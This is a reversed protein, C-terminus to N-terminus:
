KNTLLKNVIPIDAAAWDLTGLEEAKLWKHSIHEHLTLADSDVQCLYAHLTVELNPYQHVVTLFYSQNTTSLNLEELLERSLAETHSEGAEIKGGPFEFKKSIY